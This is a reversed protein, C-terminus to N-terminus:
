AQKGLVYGEGMPADVQRNRETFSREDGSGDGDDASIISETGDGCVEGVDGANRRVKTLWAVGKEEMGWGRGGGQRVYYEGTTDAAPDTVMEALWRIVVGTVRKSATTRSSHLQSAHRLRGDSSM